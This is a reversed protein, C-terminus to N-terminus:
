SMLDMNLGLQRVTFTRDTLPEDEYDGEYVLPTGIRACDALNSLTSHFLIGYSSIFGHASEHVSFILVSM